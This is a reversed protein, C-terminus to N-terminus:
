RARRLVEAVMKELGEAAERIRGALMYAPTSVVGLAEDVCVEDVPCPVHTVGMAELAKATEEDNGITLSGGRGADRLVLALAAPAICAVGVPKSAAIMELLIRAVEPQVAADKGETAFSCLNKAAGFGGPLILADLEDAKAECLDRIHGRAIRASEVLVNRTEGSVEGSLHNVVHTQDINPALCDIQAGARDLALLVIVAEHIESGDFVGCGSLLVGVRTM